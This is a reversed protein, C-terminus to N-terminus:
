IGRRCDGCLLGRGYRTDAGKKGLDRAEADLASFLSRGHQGARRHAAIRAAALPAAFSTGRLKVRKGDAGIAWLDAGPAAYDLHSARGAEILVRGRGDVGTVAIVGPYSAPYAPPAAAGDNGVAAVIVAGRSRAAAVARQLLPNQPGVLSISIVPIGESTMWGLARAIALANGGAPDSGYVDASWIHETGAGMLLSGIAAAHNSARPAGKAFGRQGAMRRGAPMGGDIVGVTGGRPLSRAPLREPAAKSATGNPFHIQDATITRGPLLARLRKIGDALDQGSPIALRAYRIGLGELEAEEIVAYGVARAQRLAAPDPDLLIAEGRVAPQRHEDFEVRDGNDRVFGTLRDIRARARDGADRAIGRATETTEDVVGGVEGIVDGVRGLPDGLSPLGLQALAPAAVTLLLSALLTNRIM